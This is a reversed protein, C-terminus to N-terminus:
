STRLRSPSLSSLVRTVDPIFRFTGSHYRTYVQFYGLSMPYLGSLVRTVGPIFRFICPLYRTYVPLHRSTAPHLALPYLGFTGPPCRTNDCFYWLSSMPYKRLFVRIVDTKFNLFQSNINSVTYKIERVSIPLLIQEHASHFLKKSLKAWKIYEKVTCLLLILKVCIWM